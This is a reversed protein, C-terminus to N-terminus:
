GCWESKLKGILTRPNSVGEGRTPSICTYNGELERTLQFSFTGGPNVAPNGGLERVDTGERLFIATPDNDGNPDTVCVLNFTNGLRSATFDFQQASSIALLASITLFLAFSM